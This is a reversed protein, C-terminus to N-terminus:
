CRGLEISGLGSARGGGQQSALRGGSESGPEPALADADRALVIQWLQLGGWRFAAESGQLYLWWMRAFPEGYMSVVRDRVKQFNASWHQLTKIYHQRLNEVDLVGLGAETTHQVLQTLAPLYGGPFIYRKIWPDVSQPRLRGITHLVSLGGPALLKRWQRFFARYQREGVHEFMGVSVIRDFSGAVDRWDGRISHVREAVGLRQAERELHEAQENAPTVGSAEVGYCRAAHLM